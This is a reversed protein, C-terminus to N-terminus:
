KGSDNGVSAVVGKILDGYVLMLTESEIRFFKGHLSQLAAFGRNWRVPWPYHPASEDSADFTWANSPGVGAPAEDYFVDLFITWARERLGAVYEAADTEPIMAGVIQLRDRIQRVVGTKQWHEFLLGYGTWTQEGDIAFLLILSAGLATLVASGVEDIGARADILVVEPAWREELQDLLRSLRRSWTEKNGDEDVKPMWVRGLKAVYEGARRGHAPAVWIEGNRSLASEAVMDELLQDANDVLDEVLWDTIGYAPRRDESLLSSSLGPSELDLDLVLVRKGQEALGWAVAALATSRGVGGKVSYFVIRPVGMATPAIEAWNSEMVLRDVVHVGDCGELPFTSERGLFQDFNPEFLLARDAPYAHPGLSGQIEAALVELQSRAEGDDRWREDLILRVRGNLDRNVVIPAQRRLVAQRRGFVEKLAKNVLSRVLEAGTRHGQVRAGDFDGQNAYRQSVQWDSFPNGASLAYRPGAPHGSRYSEYRDWVKDAHVWDSRDVPDGSGSDVRMGFSMMLRKLGCEATLGYLHDSNAFRKKGRLEEADDWHRDHADLFDANLSDEPV